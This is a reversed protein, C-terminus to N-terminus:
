FQIGGNDGLDFPANNNTTPAGNGTVSNVAKSEQWPPLTDQKAKEIFYHVKATNEGNYPEHKIRLAGVHGIWSSINLNGQVIGFSNWIKSLNTNTMQTNTPDFVLYYFVRANTGSLKLKIEFMDKNSKSKREIVSEIRARYNGVEPVDPTEEVENPNFNWNVM